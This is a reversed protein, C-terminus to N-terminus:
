VTARLRKNRGGPPFFRARVVKATSSVVGFLTLTRFSLTASMLTPVSLGLSQRPM